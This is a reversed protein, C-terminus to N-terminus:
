EKVKVFVTVISLFVYYVVFFRDKRAAVSDTNNRSTEKM